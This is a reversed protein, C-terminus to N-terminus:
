NGTVPLAPSLSRTWGLLPSLACFGGPCGQKVTSPQIRYRENHILCRKGLTSQSSLDGNEFKPIIVLLSLNSYFLWSLIETHIPKNPHKQKMKNTLITESCTALFFFFFTFPFRPPVDSDSYGCCYQIHRHICLPLGCPLFFGDIESFSTPTM